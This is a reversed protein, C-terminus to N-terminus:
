AWRPGTFGSSRQNGRAIGDQSTGAIVDSAILELRHVRVRDSPDGARRYEIEVNAFAASFNPDEWDGKRAKGKAGDIAAIEEATLDHVAGDRELRVYRM